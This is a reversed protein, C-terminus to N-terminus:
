PIPRSRRCTCRSPTWASAVAHSTAAPPLSPCGRRRILARSNPESRGKSCTQLAPSGTASRARSGHGAAARSRLPAGGRGRRRIEPAVPEHAHNLSAPPGGGAGEIGPGQGRRRAAETRGAASPAAERGPPGKGRRPRDRVVGVPGRGRARPGGETKARALPLDQGARAILDKEDVGRLAFLLEPDSTSGRASATSCPPSTSACPRGTPAAAPSARDRAPSPFLGTKEACIREM